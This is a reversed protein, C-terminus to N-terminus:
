RIEVMGSSYAVLTVARRAKGPSCRRSVHAGRKVHFSKELEVSSGLVSNEEGCM